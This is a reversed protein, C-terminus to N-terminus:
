FKGKGFYGRRPFVWQGTQKMFQGHFYPADQHDPDKCCDDCLKESGSQITVELCCDGGDFYCAANNNENNCIGDTHNKPLPCLSTKDFCICDICYNKMADTGCCDGGDFQDAGDGLNDLVETCHENNNMDDCFGDNIWRSIGGSNDCLSDITNDIGETLNAPILEVETAIADHDFTEWLALGIFLTMILIITTLFLIGCLLLNGCKQEMWDGKMMPKDSSQQFPGDLLGDDEEDEVLPTEGDALSNIYGQDDSIISTQSKM